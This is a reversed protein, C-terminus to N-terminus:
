EYRIAEAAPARAAQMAPVVDLATVLVVAGVIGAGLLGAYVGGFGMTERMIRSLLAALGTGVVAGALGVVAAELFFLRFVGHVTAGLAKLIGVSRRRRMARSALINTVNAAAILLASLALFLIVTVLRSLRDRAEAAEHRPVSLAVSGAGYQQEFWRSLQAQAESLRQSDAVTFHLTATRFFRMGMMTGGFGMLEPMAAQTFVM